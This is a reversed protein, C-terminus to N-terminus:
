IICTMGCMRTVCNKSERRMIAIKNSKGAFVSKPMPTAM